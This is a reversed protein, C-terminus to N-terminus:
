QDARFSSAVLRKPSHSEHYRHTAYFAQGYWWNPNAIVGGRRPFGQGKDERQGTYAPTLIDFSGLYLSCDYECVNGEM